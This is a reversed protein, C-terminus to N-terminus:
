LLASGTDKTAATFFCCFANAEHQSARRISKMQSKLPRFSDDKVIGDAEDDRQELQRQDVLERDIWGVFRRIMKTKM